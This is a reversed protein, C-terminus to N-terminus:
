SYGTHIEYKAPRLFHQIFDSFNLPPLNTLM